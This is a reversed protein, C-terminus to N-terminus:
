SVYWGHASWFHIYVCRIYSRTFFFFSRLDIVFQFDKTLAISFICVRARVICLFTFFEFRLGPMLKARSRTKIHIDGTAFWEYMWTNKCYIKFHPSPTQIKMLNVRTEPHLSSKAWKRDELGKIQDNWLM